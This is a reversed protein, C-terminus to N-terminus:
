ATFIQDIKQKLMEVSFPKIIYNDAGAKTAKVINEKKAETTVILFRTEGLQENSRIAKLLELGSLGPTDWDSIVFDVKRERLTKLANKGDNAELVNSYGLQSLLSRIIRRMMSFGDVSMITISKESM